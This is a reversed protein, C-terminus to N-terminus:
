GVINIILVQQKLDAVEQSKSSNSEQLKAITEEYEKKSKESEDQITMIQQQM